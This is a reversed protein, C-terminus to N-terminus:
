VIFKLIDIPAAAAGTPYSAAGRLTLTGSASAGKLEYSNSGLTPTTDIAVLCFVNFSNVVEQSWTIQGLNTAGKFVALAAGVATSNSAQGTIIILNRNDTGPSDITFTQAVSFSAFTTSAVTPASAITTKGDYIISGWDIKAANVNDDAIKATTVNSDAIKATTVNSDAIKATTVAGTALNVASISGNYDNYLTDFNANVQSSSITTNPSFTYPKALVSM